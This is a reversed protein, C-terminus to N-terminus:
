VLIVDNPMQYVELCDIGILACVINVRQNQPSGLGAQLSKELVASIVRQADDKLMTKSRGASQKNRHTHSM